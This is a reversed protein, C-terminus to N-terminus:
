DFMGLFPSVLSPGLGRANEVIGSKHVGEGIKYAGLAYKAVEGVGPIEKIGDVVDKGAPSELVGDINSYIKDTM